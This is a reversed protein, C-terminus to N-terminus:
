GLPQDAVSVAVSVVDVIRRLAEQVAHSGANTLSLRAQVDVHTGDARYGFSSPIVKRSHLIAAVRLLAAGDARDVMRLTLTYTNM